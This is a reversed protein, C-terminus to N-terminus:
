TRAPLPCVADKEALGMAFMMKAMGTIIAAVMALEIIQGDRYHEQLQAMLEPGVEGDPEANSLVGALRM